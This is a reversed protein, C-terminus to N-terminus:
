SSTEKRLTARAFASTVHVATIMVHSNCLIRGPHCTDKQQRSIDFTFISHQYSLLATQLLCQRCVHLLTVGTSTEADHHTFRSYIQIREVM